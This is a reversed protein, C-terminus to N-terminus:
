GAKRATATLRKEYMIAQRAIRDGVFRPLRLNAMGPIIGEKRAPLTMYTDAGAINYDCVLLVQCGGGIAFTDVQSIWVKEKTDGRGRRSQHGAAGPWADGQQGLGSRAVPVLHLRDQRLLPPHLNIGANFIRRGRYKPHDVYDGRLM